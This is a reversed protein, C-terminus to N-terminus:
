VDHMVFIASVFLEERLQDLPLGLRRELEIKIAEIKAANYRIFNTLTSLKCTCLFLQQIFLLYSM